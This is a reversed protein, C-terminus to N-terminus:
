IPKSPLFYRGERELKAAEPISLEGHPTSITPIPAGFKEKRKCKPEKEKVGAVRKAM